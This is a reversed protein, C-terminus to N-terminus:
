DQITISAANTGHLFYSSVKTRQVVDLAIGRACARDFRPDNVSQLRQIEIARASQRAGRSVDSVSSACKV